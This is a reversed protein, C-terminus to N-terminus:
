GERAPGTAAPKTDDFELLWKRVLDVLLRLTPLDQRRFSGSFKCEEGDRYSRQFSATMFPGQNSEQRWVSASLAGIRLTKVPRRRSEDAQPSNTQQNM